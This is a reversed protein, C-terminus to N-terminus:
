QQEQDAADEAAPEDESVETQAPAEAEDGASAAEVREAVEAQTEAQQEANEADQRPEDAPPEPKAGRKKKSAAKAERKAAKEAAMELEFPMPSSPSRWTGPRFQEMWYGLSRMYLASIFASVIAGAIWVILAVVITVVGLLALPVLDTGLMRASAASVIVNIFPITPLLVIFLAAALLPIVLLIVCFAQGFGGPDRRFMMFVRKIQLGPMVREYIISRFAGAAALAAVFVALLEVLFQLISGVVPILGLLFGIIVVPAVWIFMVWLALFGYRACRGLDGLKRSLPMHMGWAAEKAWDFLYGFMIIQGIIPVCNMFGLVLTAKWWDDDTALDSWARDMYTNITKM